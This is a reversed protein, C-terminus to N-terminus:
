VILRGWPWLPDPLIFFIIVGVPISGAFEPKYNLAEILHALVYGKEFGSIASLWSWLALLFRVTEGHNDRIKLCAESGNFPGCAELVPPTIGVPCFSFHESLYRYWHWV